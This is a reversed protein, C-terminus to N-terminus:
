IQKLLREIVESKTCSWEQTLRAIKEIASGTLSFTVTRKETTEEIKGFIEEYEDGTLNKEAWEQASELTMPIIKEGGCWQNQGITEAYRSMAGGEGHLFYEGTNKRYLTEIWYNFDSRSSYSAQGMEKATDTDYRRGNIVKKM